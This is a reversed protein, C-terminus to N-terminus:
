KAFRRRSSGNTRNELWGLSLAADNVQERDFVVARLGTHFAVPKVGLRDFQARVTNIAVGFRRAIDGYTDGEPFREAKMKQINTKLYYYRGEVIADPLLVGAAHYHTMHKRHVGLAEAAEKLTYYDDRQRQKTM